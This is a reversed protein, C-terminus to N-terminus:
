SHRSSSDTMFRSWPLHTIDRLVGTVGHQQGASTPGSGPRGSTIDFGGTIALLEQFREEVIMWAEDTRDSPLARPTKIVNSQALVIYTGDPKILGIEFQYPINPLVPLYWNGADLLIPQRREEGTDTRILKIISTSRDFIWEDHEHILRSRDAQSIEWYVFVWHPDRPLARLVTLQYGGPLEPGREGEFPVPPGAPAKAPPVSSGSSSVTQLSTSSVSEKLATQGTEKKKRGKQSAIICEILEPKTMKSRGPIDLEKALDYLDRKGMSNLEMRSLTMIARWSYSPHIVM